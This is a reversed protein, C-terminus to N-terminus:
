SQLTQGLEASQTALRATDEQLMLLSRQLRPWAAAPTTSPASVAYIDADNPAAQFGPFDVHRPQKFDNQAQQLIESVRVWTAELIKQLLTQPMADAHRALLLRIAAVHSVVLYNQVIFANIKEVARHQRQPEDLMRVLAANLGALSEMFRKRSIRYVFDHPVRGALLDGSADLYRQSATLVSTILRPMARYEWSPLVFSFLTAIAAGIFTDLLREGILQEGNPSLLTIQLLIQMSAAIATFRYKVVIFSAAAVTALFLFGILFIPKHFFHLIVATLICGIVTGILRDTRRQRTMSFSPKLVVVISLIMWYGHTSYPLSAAVLLGTAIAMTMRLAYRFVPSQWRFHSVLIKLEYSQQSLFPTLDMGPLPDGAAGDIIATSTRLSKVGAILERIKAWANQLVTLAEATRQAGPGIVPATELMQLAADAEEIDDVYDPGPRPMVNRTLDYAVNEIDRAAKWIVNRLLYLVQDNGAQEHLLVYDTHTSVILEYLDLMKLHMQVLRADTRDTTGRLLQDRSEQQKEALVIQQRVLRNFQRSLVTKSAYFDAKIAMYRALEYLAEALIQQKIRHRLFWAVIMSYTLYGLGGALVLVSHLVAETATLDPKMSLTMIFLAAFQLPLTKKGYAVMMCALFSVGLVAAYLLWRIPACLSILLTVLSCLLASALMENFKHRLPSPLDMLSTCLAGISVTMAMPLDTVVYVLLTLGVVGIGARLGRYFYHSYLFTRFTLAYDM